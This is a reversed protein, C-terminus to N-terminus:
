SVADPIRAPPAPLPVTAAPRQLPLYIRVRTGEGPLSHADIRGDHAEVISRAIPLGLGAGANEHAPKGKGRYFRDFIRPLDDPAIGSGNDAVEIMLEDRWSSSVLWIRGPPRSYKAANDVLIMIAQGVREVDIELQGTGTLSATLTADYKRALVATRGALGQLWESADVSELQLPISSADSRALFLLDDVLKTMRVSEAVIDEFIEAHESSRSLALGAEANGRLVTLPTRLEHSADAIFSTNARLSQALRASTEQQAEYLLRIHAVVRVAIWALGIGILVLGGLLAVLITRATRIEQNVNTLSQAAREEGLRDIDQAAREMEGLTALGTASALEFAAPDTDYVDVAPRFTSWYTDALEQLRAATLIDDDPDLEIEAYDRIQEELELYARTLNALAEPSEPGVFYFDRHYHRLDLIAARLDDGEDELNVDHDLAHETIEGTNHNIVLGVVGAIAIAILLGGLSVGLILTSDRWARNALRRAQGRVWQM